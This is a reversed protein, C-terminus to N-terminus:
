RRAHDTGKERTRSALTRMQPPWGEATLVAEALADIAREKAAILAADKRGNCAVADEAQLFDMAARVMKECYICM